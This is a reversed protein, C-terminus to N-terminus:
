NSVAGRNTRLWDNRDLAALSCLTMPVAMEVFRGDGNVGSNLPMGISEIVMPMFVRRKYEFGIVTPTRSPMVADKWDTAGRMWDFFSKLFTGDDALEQPLAWSMLKAFPNEVEEQPNDWARFLAVMQIKIPPMGSFIQTSNLKTIGTRGAFQSLFANSKQVFEDASKKNVVGMEGMLGVISGVLPQIEGSQLM